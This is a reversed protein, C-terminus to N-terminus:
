KWTNQVTRLADVFVSLNVGSCIPQCHLSGCVYPSDHAVTVLGHELHTKVAM